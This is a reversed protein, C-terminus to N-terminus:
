VLKNSFYVKSLTLINKKGLTWMFINEPMLRSIFKLDCVIDWGYSQTIVNNSAMKTKNSNQWYFLKLRNKGRGLM